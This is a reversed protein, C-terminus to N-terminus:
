TKAVDLNFGKASNNQFCNFAKKKVEYTSFFM